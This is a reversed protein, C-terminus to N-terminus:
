SLLTAIHATAGNSDTTQLWNKPSQNRFWTFQRKAYRRTELQLRSIVAENDLTGALLAILGAVGIARRVPADDPVDARAVLAAVEEMAGSALMERARRDIRDMLLDRPPLLVAAALTVRAGIGGVRQQQWLALPRGTARVVELARAVRTTDAPALRAAAAPDELMLLAHAEAVPLARIAARIAPAIPPVPAIGDILTRLYLGTGGVLVPLLGAAHAADIEGRAEAAWRAASYGADAGGVFGAHGVAQEAVDVAGVGAIGGCAPC